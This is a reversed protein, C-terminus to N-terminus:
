MPSADPLNGSFSWAMVANAAASDSGAAVANSSFRTGAAHSVFAVGALLVLWM